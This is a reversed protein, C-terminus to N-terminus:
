FLKGKGKKNKIDKLGKKTEFLEDLKSTYKNTTGTKKNEQTEEVIINKSEDIQYDVANFGKAKYDEKESEETKVKETKSKETNANLINDDLKDEIKGFRNKLEEENDDDDATDYDDIKNKKRNVIILIILVIVM